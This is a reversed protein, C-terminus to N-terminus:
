SPLVGGGTCSVCCFRIAGSGGVGWYILRGPKQQTRNHRCFAHTTQEKSRVVFTAAAGSTGLGHFAVRAPSSRVEAFVGKLVTAM